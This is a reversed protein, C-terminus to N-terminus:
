AFVGHKEKWMVSRERQFGRGEPMPLFARDQEDSM